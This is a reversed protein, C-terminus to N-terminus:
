VVSKRDGPQSSDACLRVHPEFECVTLNHGSGFNAVEGVSGGMHGGWNKKINRNKLSLSLSLSLALWFLHPLSLSVRYGFCTAPESSDACLGIRPEFECVTLNHGSGFNSM